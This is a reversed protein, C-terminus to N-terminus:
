QATTRGEQQVKARRAKDKMWACTEIHKCQETCKKNLDYRCKM